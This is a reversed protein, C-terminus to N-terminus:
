RYQCDPPDTRNCGPPPSDEISSLTLNQGPVLFSYDLKVPKTMSLSTFLVLSYIQM